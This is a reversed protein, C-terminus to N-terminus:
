AEVTVWSERKEAKRKKERLVLVLTKVELGRFSLDIENVPGNPRLALMTGDAIDEDKGALRRTSVSLSPIEVKATFSDDDGRKMADPIVNPPGPFSFLSPSSSLATASGNPTLACIHLPSNFLYAAVPVNSELFHGKHPMVAWSFAHAGQDQEADPETATRLLSIRLIDGQCSFGYKSESLLAVGYGCESLDAYWGFQTEYTANGSNIVLPLEFKLFEHRQHWDVCADFRFMSRSGPMPSPVADLSITVNIRSQGYVVEAEVSARLPGQAVVSVKTFELPTAKEPAAAASELVDSSGSTGLNVTMAEDITGPGGISSSTRWPVSIVTMSKHSGHVIGNSVTFAPRDGMQAASATRQENVTPLRQLGGSSDLGNGQPTLGGTAGEQILERGLQVDLLSTIRGCSITLQMSANRLVFHDGGNTYMVLSLRSGGVGGDSAAGDPVGAESWGRLERVRVWDEWGGGGARSADPACQQRCVTPSARRRLPLLADHQICCSAVLRDLDTVVAAATLGQTRGGLIVDLADDIMEEYAERVETYLKEADDYVMGSRLKNTRHRTSLYPFTQRCPPAPFCTTSFTTKAVMEVDRLLIESHRNRSGIRGWSLSAHHSTYTGHHFARGELEPTGERGALEALYDFFKDVSRDMHVPPLESHNNTVARMRRLLLSTDSSELNKHNTIARNVDWVSVQATYTDVPTMHCVFIARLTSSSPFVAVLQASGGREEYGTRQMLWPAVVFGDLSRTTSESSLSSSRLLTTQTAACM